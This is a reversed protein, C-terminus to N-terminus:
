AMRLSEGEPVYEGTHVYECVRPCWCGPVRERIWECRADGLGSVNDNEWISDCVCRAMGLGLDLRELGTWMYTCLHLLVCTCACVCVRVSEGHGVTRHM